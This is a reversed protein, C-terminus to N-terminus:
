FCNAYPAFSKLNLAGARSIRQEMESAAADFKDRKFGKVFTVEEATLDLGEIAQDPNSFLLDRYQMDSIAQGIVRRVGADSM